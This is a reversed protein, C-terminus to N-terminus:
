REGFMLGDALRLSKCPSVFLVEVLRHRAVVVRASWWAPFMRSRKARRDSTVGGLSAILFISIIVICLVNHFIWSEIDFPGIMVSPNALQSHSLRTLLM